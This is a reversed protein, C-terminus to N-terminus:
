EMVGDRRAQAVVGRLAELVAGVETVPCSWDASEEAGVYGPPLSGNREMRFFAVGGKPLPLTLTARWYADDGVAVSGTASRESGEDEYRGSLKYRSHEERVTVLFRLGSTLQM